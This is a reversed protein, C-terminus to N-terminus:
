PGLERASNVPTLFHVRCHTLFAGTLEARSSPGHVRTTSVSRLDCRLRRQAANDAIIDPSVGDIITLDVKCGFNVCFHKNQYCKPLKDTTLERSDWSFLM